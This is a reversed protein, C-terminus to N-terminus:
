ISKNVGTGEGTRKPPAERPQSVGGEAGGGMSTDQGAPGPSGNRPSGGVSEEDEDEETLPCLEMAKKLTQVASPSRELFYGNSASENSAGVPPSWNYQYPSTPGPRERRQELEEQLWCIAERNQQALDRNEMVKRHASPCS